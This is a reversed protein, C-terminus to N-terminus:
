VCLNVRHIATFIAIRKRRVTGTETMKKNTFNKVIHRFDGGGYLRELRRLNQLLTQKM